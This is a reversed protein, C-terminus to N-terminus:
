LQRFYFIHDTISRNPRFRCQHDRITKEAYPTLRSLLVNSLTKYTAPLLSTGRYNSCDRKDGKKYILVTVL